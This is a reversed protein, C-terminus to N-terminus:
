ICTEITRFVVSRAIVVQLHSSSISPTWFKRSKLHNVQQENPLYGEKGGLLEGAEGSPDAGLRRYGSGWAERERGARGGATYHRNRKIM